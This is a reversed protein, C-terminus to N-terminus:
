HYYNRIKEKKKKKKKKKKKLAGDGLFEAKINAHSFGCLFIKSKNNDEFASM